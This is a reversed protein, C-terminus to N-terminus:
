PALLEEYVTSRTDDHDDDIIMPAGLKPKLNLHVTFVSCYFFCLEHTYLHICLKSFTFDLM